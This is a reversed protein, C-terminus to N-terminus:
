ESSLEMDRKWLVNSIECLKHICSGQNEFKTECLLDNCERFIVWGIRTRSTVAAEYGGGSKIRDVLYSFETM